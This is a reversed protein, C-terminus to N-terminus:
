YGICIETGQQDKIFINLLIPGVSIGSVRNSVGGVRTHETLIDHGQKHTSLINEPQSFFTPRLSQPASSKLVHFCFCGESTVCPRNLALFLTSSVNYNM